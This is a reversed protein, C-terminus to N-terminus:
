YTYLIGLTLDLSFGRTYYYNSIAVYMGLVSRLICVLYMIARYYM